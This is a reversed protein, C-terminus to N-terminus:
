KRLVRNLILAGPKPPPCCGQQSTCSWTPERCLSSHPSCPGSTVTSVYVSASGVWIWSLFASPGRPLAAWGTTRLGHLCRHLWWCQWLSPLPLQFSFSGGLLSPEPEPISRPHGLVVPLRGCGLPYSANSSKNWLIGQEWSQEVWAKGREGGPKLAWSQRKSNNSIIKVILM